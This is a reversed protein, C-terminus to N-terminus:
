LVFFAMPFGIAKKIKMKEPVLPNIVYFWLPPLLSLLISAPYGM